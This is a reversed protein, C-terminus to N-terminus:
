YKGNLVAYMQHVLSTYPNITLRHNIRKDTKDKPHLYDVVYQEKIGIEYLHDILATNYAGDAYAFSDIPQQLLRELYNKGKNILATSEQIPLRGLNDHYYAHLGIDAYPSAALQIIEQDSLVEWYPTWKGSHIQESVGPFTHYIKSKVSWDNIKCYHKLSIGQANKYIGRHKYYTEDNFSIPGKSLYSAIDLYDAWLMPYSTENIATIFFTAPLQHKELIPLALQLNNQYGDDFTIAIKMRKPDGKGKLLDKCSLVQYNQKLFILQKEFRKASIFRGNIDTRGLTDIGHYLLICSGPRDALLQRSFGLQSATEIGHKRLYYSAKHLTREIVKLKDRGM